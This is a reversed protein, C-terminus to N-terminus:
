AAPTAASVTADLTADDAALQATVAAIASGDAVQAQLDAIQQAQSAITAAQAQITTIAKAISASNAQGQTQLDSLASMIKRQNVILHLLYELLRAM